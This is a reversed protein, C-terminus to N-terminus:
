LFLSDTIVRKFYVCYETEVEYAFDPWNEQMYNDIIINNKM